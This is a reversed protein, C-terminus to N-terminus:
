GIERRQGKRWRCIWGLGLCPRGVLVALVEAGLKAMWDEIALIEAGVARAM